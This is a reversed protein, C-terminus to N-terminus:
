WLCHAFCELRRGPGDPDGDTAEIDMLEEYDYEGFVLANAEDYGDGQGQAARWDASSANGAAIAHSLEAFLPIPEALGRRYLDVAVELASRAAQVRADRGTRGVPVLDLVAPPDNNSRGRTVTVSRWEEQPHAAVLSMLDLWAAVEHAPKPRAFRVDCPGPAPSGLRDLVTGTITTGDALMVDIPVPEGPDERRGLEHSARLLDEVISCVEALAGAELVGPPVTGRRREVAAWDDAARGALRVELLRRGARSMELGALELPVVPKPGDEVWPLRMELRQELFARVPHRFFRQLDELAIEKMDSPALPTSLFVSPDSAPRNRRALAGAYSEPDFSWPGEVISGPEFCRADFVQRPHETELGVLFGPRHEPHVMAGLADVFEAGVVPQPIRHNTCVDHGNRLVVLREGATLLAELLAQRADGRPDRDGLQPAWTMLDDGDVAGTPFSGQDMGLLCVVRSPIGRLPTMSTVTIGGRFFDPRGAESRLEYDFIRRLDTFTVITESCVGDVPGNEIVTRLVRYLADMQWSMDPAVAFLDAIAGRFLTIWAGIPRDTRTERQLSEVVDLFQSFRGALETDDGGTEFPVVDGVALSLGDGYVATGVLVQDFGARWTNTAVEAPVHFEARHAADIGWRVNTMGAWDTVRALDDRTFAFRERVPASAVFDLVSAIDFRGALLAILDTMAELVPSTARISRDAIRYRLTPAQLGAPDTQSPNTPGDPRARSPDSDASLGFVGEVIPAFLDLAPCLVVIDDECLDLDPDALLHLIADRLVEVQRTPGYCAHLQISRDAPDPVLMGGPQRDARIDAQLEALLSRPPPAPHPPGVPGPNAPPQPPAVQHFGQRSADMLLVAAERHLRGWSRLLPHNVLRGSEDDSRQRPVTPARDPLSAVRQRVATSPELFLVHVDRVAAVAEALELFAPGGPLQSLGFLAVRDPLELDIEGRRLQELLGPLREAPSEEAIRSRCLKWLYPQWVLQDPVDRGSGDVLHGSAWQRIMEPRHVHYRDFLDALKRAVGFRSVGPAPDTLAGPLRAGPSRGDRHRDERHRDTVELLVWTLREVRWPDAGPIRGAEFVRQRLSGPFGFEINAAM